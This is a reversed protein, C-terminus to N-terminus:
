PRPSLAVPAEATRFGQRSHDSAAELTAIADPSM